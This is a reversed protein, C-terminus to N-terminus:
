EEFTLDRFNLAGGLKKLTKTVTKQAESTCDLMQAMNNYDQILQRM